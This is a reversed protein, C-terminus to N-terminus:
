ELPVLYNRSAVIRDDVVTLIWVYGVRHTIAATTTFAAVAEVTVDRGNAAPTVVIDNLAIRRYKAFVGGLYAAIAARGTLRQAGGRAFPMAMVTDDGSGATLAALNMAQYDALFQRVTAEPSRAAAPGGLALLIALGALRARM